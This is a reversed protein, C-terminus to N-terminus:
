RVSRVTSSSPANNPSATKGLQSGSDARPMRRLTIWSLSTAWPALKPTDM